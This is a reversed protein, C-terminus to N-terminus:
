NARKPRDEGSRDDDASHDSRPDELLRLRNGVVERIESEDRQYPYEAANEGQHSRESQGLDIDKIRTRAPVIDEQTFAIPSQRPKQPPPDLEANDATCGDRSQRGDEGFGEMINEAIRRKLLRKM